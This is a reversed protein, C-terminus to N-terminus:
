YCLVNLYFNFYLPNENSNFIICRVIILPQTKNRWGLRHPKHMIKKIVLLTLEQVDLDIVESGVLQWEGRECHQLISLIAEAELCIRTQTLDDFPRNLCCVDLYILSM